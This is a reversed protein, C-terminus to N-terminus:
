SAAALTPRGQTFAISVRELARRWTKYWGRRLLFLFIWNVQVTAAEPTTGRTIIWFSEEKDWPNTFGPTSRVKQCLGLKRICLNHTHTCVCTCLFCVVRAFVPIFLSEKCGFLCLSISSFCYNQIINFIRDSKFLVNAYIINLTWVVKAM